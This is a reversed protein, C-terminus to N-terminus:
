QIHWQEILSDVLNRVGRTDFGYMSLSFGGADFDLIYQTQMVTAGGPLDVHFTSTTIGDVKVRDELRFCAEPLPKKRACEMYETEIERGLGSGIQFEVFYTYQDGEYRFSAYGIGFRIVHFTQPLCSSKEGASICWQDNRNLVWIPEKAGDVESSALASPSAFLIVIIAQIRM